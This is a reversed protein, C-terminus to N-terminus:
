GLGCSQSVAEGCMVGLAVWQIGLIAWVLFGLIPNGIVLIWGFTLLTARARQASSGPAVFRRAAWVRRYATLHIILCALAVIWLPGTVVAYYGITAGVGDLAALTARPGGPEVWISVPWVVTIAAFAVGLVVSIVLLWLGGTRVPPWVSSVVSRAAAPAWGTSRLEAAVKEPDAESSARWQVYRQAEDM